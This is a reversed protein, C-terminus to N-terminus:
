LCIKGMLLNTHITFKILAFPFNNRLLLIWVKVRTSIILKRPLARAAYKIKGTFDSNPHNFYLNFVGFHQVTTVIGYLVERQLTSTAFFVNNVYYQVGASINEKEKYQESISFVSEFNSIVIFKGTVNVDTIVHKYLTMQM